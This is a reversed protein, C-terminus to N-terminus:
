PNYFRKRQTPIFATEKPVKILCCKKFKKGSDCFCKENRNKNKKFLPHTMRRYAKDEAVKEVVQEERKLYALRRREQITLRQKKNKM